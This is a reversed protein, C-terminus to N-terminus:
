GECAFFEELMISPQVDKIHSWSIVRGETISVVAEYTAGANGTKDLLVLFAERTVADGPQFARVVEPSPENLTVSVFRVSESLNRERRVIEVAKTVEDVTLPELPHLESIAEM